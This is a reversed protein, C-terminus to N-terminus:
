GNSRTTRKRFLGFFLLGSGILVTEYPEPVAESFHEQIASITVIDRPSGTGLAPSQLFIHTTVTASNVWPLFNVHGSLSSGGLPGVTAVLPSGAPANSFSETVSGSGLGIPAATHSGAISLSYDEMVTSGSLTAVSYTIDATLTHNNSVVFGGVSFILGPNSFGNGPDPIVASESPLPASGGGTTSASYTFNYFLKDGIRCANAFGNYNAAYFDLGANACLTSAVGSGAVISMTM